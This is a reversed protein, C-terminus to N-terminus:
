SVYPSHDRHEDRGSSRHRQRCRNRTWHKIPGPSVPEEIGRANPGVTIAGAAPGEPYKVYDGYEDTRSSRVRYQRNERCADATV